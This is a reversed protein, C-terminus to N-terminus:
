KRAKKARDCCGQQKPNPCSCPPPMSRPDLRSPALSPLGPAGSRGQSVSQANRPLSSARGQGSTPLSCLQAVVAGTGAHGPNPAYGPNTKVLVIQVINGSTTPGSKASASTVIVGML